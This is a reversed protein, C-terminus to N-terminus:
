PDDWMRIASRQRVLTRLYTWLRTAIIKPYTRHAALAVAVVVAVEVAV